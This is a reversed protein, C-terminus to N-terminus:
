SNDVSGLEPCTTMLLVHGERCMHKAVTYTQGARLTFVAPWGTPAQGPTFIVEVDCTHIATVSHKGCPYGKGQLLDIHLVKRDPGTLLVRRTKAGITVPVGNSVILDDSALAVSQTPADANLIQVGAAVADLWTKLPIETM